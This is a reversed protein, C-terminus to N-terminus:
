GGIYKNFLRSIIKERRVSNFFCRWDGNMFDAVIAHDYSSMYEKIGIEGRQFMKLSIIVDRSPIIWKVYGSPIDKWDFRIQTIDELALRATPVGNFYALLNQGWTRANLEVLYYEQQDKSLFYEMEFIGHYDMIDLIKRTISVLPEASCLEVYTGTGYPSQRVKKTCVLNVSANRSSRYGCVSIPDFEKRDIHKQILAWSDKSHLFRICDQLEKSDHVVFLKKGKDKSLLHCRKPKVVVPWERIDPVSDHINYVCAIDLVSLGLHQCYDSFHKKSLGLEITENSPSCIIFDNEIIKRNNYIWELGDDSTPIIVHKSAEHKNKVHVISGIWTSEDSNLLIKDQLRNSSFGVEEKDFAVGILNIKPHNLEHIVGLGTLSVGLVYVNIQDNM